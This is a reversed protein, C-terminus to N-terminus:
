QQESNEIHQDGLTTHKSLLWAIPLQVPLTGAASLLMAAFTDGAGRFTGALSLQAGMLAFAAAMWRLVDAGATVLGPDEPVFVRVIPAAAFIILLSAGGLLAMSSLASVRTIREARGLDGAGISQGVLTSAAMLPGLNTGREGYFMAIGIPVNAMSTDNVIFLPWLFMNWYDDLAFVAVVSLPAKLLPLIM